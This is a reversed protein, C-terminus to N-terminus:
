GIKGLLLYSVVFGLILMTEPLALFLLVTGMSGEKEALLGIGAAGIVSQALGTGIAGGAIALGAGFGILGSGITLEVMEWNVEFKQSFVERAKREIRVRV